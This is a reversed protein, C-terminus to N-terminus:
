YLDGYGGLVSRRKGEPPVQRSSKRGWRRTRGASRSEGGSSDDGSKEDSPRSESERDPGTGSGSVDSDRESGKEVPESKRVETYGDVKVVKRARRRPSPRDDPTEDPTSDPTVNEENRVRRAIIRGDCGRKPCEGRWTVKKPPAETVHETKCKPCTGRVALGAM